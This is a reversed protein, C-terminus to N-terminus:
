GDGSDSPVNRHRHLVERLLVLADHLDDTRGFTLAIGLVGIVYWGDYLVVTASLLCALGIAQLILGPVPRDWPHRDDEDV